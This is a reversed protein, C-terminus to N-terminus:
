PAAMEAVSLRGDGQDLEQLETWANNLRDQLDIVNNQTQTDMQQMAQVAARQNLARNEQEQLYQATEAKEQLDLHNQCIRTM